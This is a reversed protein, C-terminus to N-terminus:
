AANGEEDEPDVFNLLSVGRVEPRDRTPQRSPVPSGTKSQADLMNGVEACPAGLARLARIIHHVALKNNLEPQRPRFFAAVKPKRTGNPGTTMTRTEKQDHNKKTM